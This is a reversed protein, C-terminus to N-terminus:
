AFIHTIDEMFVFLRSEPMLGHLDNYVICM